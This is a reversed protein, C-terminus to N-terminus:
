LLRRRRIMVVTGLCGMMALGATVPEPVEVGSITLAGSGVAIAIVPTVPVSPLTATFSFQVTPLLPKIGFPLLQDVVTGEGDFQFINNTVRLAVTDTTIRLRVGAGTEVFFDLGFADGNSGLSPYFTGKTITTGIGDVHLDVHIDDGDAATNILTGLIVNDREFVATSIVDATGEALTGGSHGGMADYLSGDPEADLTHTAGMYEADMDSAIINITGAEVALPLLLAAAAAFIGRATLRRIPQLM